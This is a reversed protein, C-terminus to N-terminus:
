CAPISINATSEEHDVMRDVLPPERDVPIHHLHCFRTNVDHPHKIYTDLLASAM